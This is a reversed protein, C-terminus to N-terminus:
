HVVITLSTQFSLVMLHKDISPLLLAQIGTLGQSPKFLRIFHTQFTSSLLFIRSQHVQLWRSHGAALKLCGNISHGYCSLCVTLAIQYIMVILVKLQQHVSPTLCSFHFKIKVPFRNETLWICCPISHWQAWFASPPILSGSSKKYWSIGFETGEIFSLM